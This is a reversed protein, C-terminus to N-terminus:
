ENLGMRMQIMHKTFGIKEYAKIAAINDQYVELRLETINQTISWQKLAEIIKQVVGKGRHEPAVYMFGLYAHHQHKLYPKANEIRAYGSGIIEGSAEAVLLEIHPANIM